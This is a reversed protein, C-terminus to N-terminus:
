ISGGPLVTAPLTIRQAEAPADRIVAAALRGIRRRHSDTTALRVPLGDLLELNNFGALALQGPVDLGTALAHMLGGVALTDSSYYICEIDPARALLAETLRRGTAVTSGGDFLEEEPARLGAEAIEAMFGARRKLARYDGMMRSGIFGIKRYGRAVLARAMERGAETHSIGINHAVPAGDVDMVEVVPVGARALLKRTADSHELGAVILGAPRWGLFDRVIREEEEPDYGTVGMFPRLETGGLGEAIGALVEAFVLSSLSPVVVGVLTSGRSALAGAVRDPVYGLRAAVEEIRARTHAAVTEPRRFARSVTMESIGLEAAIDGLRPRRAM